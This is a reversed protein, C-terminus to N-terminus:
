KTPTVTITISKAHVLRALKRSGKKPGRKKGAGGKKSKRYAKGRAALKKDNARQAPSRKSKSKKKAAKKKAAM